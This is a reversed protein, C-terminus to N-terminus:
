LFDFHYKETTTIQPGFHIVTRGRAVIPCTNQTSGDCSVIQAINIHLNNEDFM